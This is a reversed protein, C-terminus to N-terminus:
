RATNPGYITSCIMTVLRVPGILGSQVLPDDKRWLEWTTFAFRGTPSPKGDLLWQPWSKLTGRQNREGDPPLQQDGILRNVWLNAVKIELSNQGKLLISTVDIEFPPKWLVGMPQGNLTVEAMVEVAGLDLKIRRNEGFLEAPVDFECQYTATGSFYKVGSDAHENLPILRELQIQSPAGWGEPFTVTWPSQIQMPEPVTLVSVTVTEGGSDPTEPLPTGAPLSVCQYEGPQTVCLQVSGDPGAEVIAPPYEGLVSFEVTDGDHFVLHQEHGNVRCHIDLRKVVNLDPDGGIEAVKVVPFSLRGSQVLKRVDATADRTHEPKGPKGYDSSLIEVEPPSQWGGTILFNKGNRSISRVAQAPPRSQGRRFVVFV